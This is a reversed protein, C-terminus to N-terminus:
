ITINWEFLNCWLAVGNLNKYRKLLNQLGERFVQAYNYGKSLNQFAEKFVQVYIRNSSKPFRGQVSTIDFGKPLNQFGERFVQGYVRKSSEPFMGSCKLLSM